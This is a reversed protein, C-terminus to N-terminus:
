STTNAKHTAPAGLKACPLSTTCSTDSAIRTRGLSRTCYANIFHAAVLTARYLLRAMAAIQVHAVQLLHLVTGPGTTWAIYAVFTCTPQRAPAHIVMFALLAPAHLTTDSVRGALSLGLNEASANIFRFAHDETGLPGVGMKGVPLFPTNSPRRPDIPSTLTRDQMTSMKAYRQARCRYELGGNRTAAVLLLEEMIM